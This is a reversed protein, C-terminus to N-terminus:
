EGPKSATVVSGQPRSSPASGAGQSAAPASATAAAWVGEEDLRRLYAPLRGPEFAEVSYSADPRHLTVIPEFGDVAFQWPGVPISNGPTSYTALARHSTRLDPPRGASLAAENSWYLSECDVSAFRRQAFRAVAVSGGRRVVCTTDLRLPLANPDSRYYYYDPWREQVFLPAAVIWRDPVAVVGLPMAVPALFWALVVLVVLGNSAGTRRWPWRRLLGYPPMGSLGADCGCEPCRLAPLGRLPYGCRVCVMDERDVTRAVEDRLLRSMVTGSIYCACLMSFGMKDVGDSPSPQLWPWIRNLSRVSQNLFECMGYALPWAWWTRRASSYWVAVLDIKALVTRLYRPWGIWAHIVMAAVLSAGHGASLLVSAWGTIAVALVAAGIVEMASGSSITPADVRYPDPLYSWPGLRWGLRSFAQIVASLEFVHMIAMVVIAALLHYKWAAGLTKLTLTSHKRSAPQSVRREERRIWALAVTGSGLM